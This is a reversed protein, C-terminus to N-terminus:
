TNAGWDDSEDGYRLRPYERGAIQYTLVAQAEQIQEPWGEAVQVGNHTVFPLPM